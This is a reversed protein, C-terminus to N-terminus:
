KEGGEFRTTHTHVHSFGRKVEEFITATERLQTFFLLDSRKEPDSTAAAIPTPTPTPARGFRAGRAKRARACVRVCDVWEEEVQEVESWVCGDM